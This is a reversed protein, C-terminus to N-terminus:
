IYFSRPPKLPSLGYATPLCADKDPPYLCCLLRNAHQLTFAPTCVQCADQPFLTNYKKFPLQMDRNDDDRVGDDGIYHMFVFDLVTINANRACHEKYHEVLAPVKLLQQLPTAGLLVIIIICYSYIRKVRAERRFSVGSILTFGTPLSIKGCGVM